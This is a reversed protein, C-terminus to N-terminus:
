ELDARFSFTLYALALAFGLRMGDLRMFPYVELSRFEFASAFLIGTMIILIIKLVAWGGVIYFKM